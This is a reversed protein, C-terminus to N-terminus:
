REAIVPNSLVGVGSIEIDVVDGAKMNETAGDTGMWLIDGPVLTLVRGQEREFERPNPYDTSPEIGAVYGDAEAQTNKWLTFCPLQELSFELCLGRDAAANHLLM